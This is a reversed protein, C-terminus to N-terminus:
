CHDWGLDNLMSQLRPRHVGRALGLFTMILSRQQETGMQDLSITGMLWSLTIGWGQGIVHRELLYLNVEPAIQKKEAAIKLHEFIKTPTKAFLLDALPDDPESKLLLRAMTETYRPAAQLRQQLIKTSSLISYLGESRHDADELQITEQRIDDVAAVALMHKSGWLNYLTARAVGAKKAVNSM